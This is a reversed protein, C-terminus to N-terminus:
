EGDIQLTIDIRYYIWQELNIFRDLKKFRAYYSKSNEETRCTPFRATDLLAGVDVAIEFRREISKRRCWVVKSRRIGRKVDDIRNGDFTVFIRAFNCTTRRRCFTMGRRWLRAVISRSMRVSKDSLVRCRTLIMGKNWQCFLLSLKSFGWRM